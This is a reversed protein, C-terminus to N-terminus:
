GQGAKKKVMKLRFFDEREKEELADQISKVLAQYGPIQINQLANT